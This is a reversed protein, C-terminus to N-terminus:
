FYNKIWGPTYSSLLFSLKENIFKKGRKDTTLFLDFNQKLHDYFAIAPIVHGGTGGTSILIKKKM